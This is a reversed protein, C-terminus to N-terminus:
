YEKAFSLECKTYDFESALIGYYCRDEYKNNIFRENRHIGELKLGVREYVKRAAVNSANTYLYVKHLQLVEFGYKCSLYTAQEGYGMRHKNPNVFLYFEANRLQRNINILGTFALADGDNNILTIDVRSDNNKIREYWAQTNELSIPPTYTMNSYVRPDNM